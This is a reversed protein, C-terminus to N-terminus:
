TGVRVAHAVKERLPNDLAFIAVLTLDQELIAKDEESAFDNTAARNSEFDAKPVDTYAYLISRYANGSGQGDPGISYNTWDKNLFQDVIAGQEPEDLIDIAGDANFTRACKQILIEPAGKVVVRVTEPDEPLEVVTTMRARASSHPITFLVKGLKRDFM